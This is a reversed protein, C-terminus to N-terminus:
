LNTRTDNQMMELLKSYDGVIPKWDGCSGYESVFCKAKRCFFSYIEDSKPRLHLTRWTYMVECERCLNYDKKM